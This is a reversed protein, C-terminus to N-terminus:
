RGISSIVYLADGAPTFKFVGGEEGFPWTILRRWKSVDAKSSSAAVWDELGWKEKEAKAFMAELARFNAKTPLPRAVRKKATASREAQRWALTMKPTLKPLADNVIVYSAGNTNDYCEAGQLCRLPLLLLL